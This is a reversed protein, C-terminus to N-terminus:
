YICMFCIGLEKIIMEDINLIMNRIEPMKDPLYIGSSDKLTKWHEDRHLGDKTGSGVDNSTNDTNVSGSSNKAESGTVNSSLYRDNRNNTKDTTNLTKTNNNTSMLNRTETALLNNLSTKTDDGLDSGSLTENATGGENNINTLNGDFNTTTDTSTLTYDTLYGLTKLNEISGEPTDSFRRDVKDSVVTKDKTTNTYGGSKDYDSDTVKGYTMKTKTSENISTSDDHTLTGTDSGDSEDTITGTKMLKNDDTTYGTDNSNVSNTNNQTESHTDESSSISSKNETWNEDTDGWGVFHEEQNVGEQELPDYKLSETWYLQNYYPMKEKMLNQVHFMWYDPTEFGIEEFAYHKLIKSNLEDRHEEEFIPYDGLIYHGVKATKEPDRLSGPLLGEMIKWTEVTYRATKRM